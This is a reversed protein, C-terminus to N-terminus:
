VQYEYEDITIKRNEQNLYKLVRAKRQSLIFSIFKYQLIISKM